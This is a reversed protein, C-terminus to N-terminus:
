APRCAHQEDGRLVGNSLAIGWGADEDNGGLFTSFSLRASHASARSSRMAADTSRASADASRRFISRGRRAPSTRRARQRGRDRAGCRRRTRRSVVCVRGDCKPEFRHRVSIKAVFGDQPGHLDPQFANVTPFDVSQTSGAIYLSGAGGAAIGLGADDGSGGYYRRITSRVRQAHLPQRICRLRGRVASLAIGAIPLDSSWTAGTISARGQADVRHCEGRGRRAASIRRILCSRHVPNSRRFSHM